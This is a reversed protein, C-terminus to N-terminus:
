PSCDRWEWCWAVATNGVKPRPQGSSPSLSFWTPACLLGAYLFSSDARPWRSVAHPFPTRPVSGVGLPQDPQFGKGPFPFSSLHGQCGKPVTEPLSPLPSSGNIHIFHWSILYFKLCFSLWPRLSPPSLFIHTSNVIIQLQISLLACVCVCKCSCLCANECGSISIVWLLRGICTYWYVCM